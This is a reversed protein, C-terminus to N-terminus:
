IDGIKVGGNEDNPDIEGKEVKELIAQSLDLFVEDVGRGSKASCEFFM